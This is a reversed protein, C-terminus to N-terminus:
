KRAEEPERPAVHIEEYCKRMLECRRSGPLHQDSAPAPIIFACVEDMGQPTLWGQRRGRQVAFCDAAMPDPGHYQFGCSHAHVWLKVPTSVKALRKPNLILFGPYAASWDDLQSDLVTPRRGCIVRRGDIELEGPSVMKADGGARAVYEEPTVAKSAPKATPTLASPLGISPIAAGKAEAQKRKEIEELLKTAFMREFDARDRAEDEAKKKAAEAERLERLRAKALEGYYTDGYRRAFVELTAITEAGKVSIWAREAENHRSGAVGAVCDGGALCVRGVVQNYYAPTQRHRAKAATQRVIVRVQEAVETLSLGRTRLLPLLHRTYISNPDRDADDLRELANEGTGASYMIFTGEPPEAMALGRQSGVSRGALREFPNDRCADLIVLNFKTGKERLDALFEQLSLAERKLLEDRGPRINPVDSPLLYSRGGFEVGHGAYFFAATDGPVLKNLLDQWHNNFDSRTVDNKAIVDFGLERLVRAVAAADSRAKRLQAHPGLNDYNDIGIVLAVRKEALATSPLLLLSLLMVLTIRVM